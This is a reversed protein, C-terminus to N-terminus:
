AARRNLKRRDHHSRHSLREICRIFYAASHSITEAASAGNSVIAVGTALLAKKLAQKLMEGKATGEHQDILARSGWEVANLGALSAVLAVDAAPMHAKGHRWASLNMRTVHLLAATKYDSGTHKKAADLLKETTHRDM